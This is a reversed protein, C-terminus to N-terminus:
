SNVSVQYGIQRIQNAFDNMVQTDLKAIDVAEPQFSPRAITYLM